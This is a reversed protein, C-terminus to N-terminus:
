TWVVDLEEDRDDYVEYSIDLDNRDTKSLRIKYSGVAINPTRVKNGDSSYTGVIIGGNLTFVTATYNEIPNGESDQALLTIRGLGDNDSNSRGDVISQDFYTKIALPNGINNLAITLLDTFMANALIFRKQALADRLEGVTGKKGVQGEADAIWQAQLDAFEEAVAVGLAASNTATATKLRTLINPWEGKGAQNLETLGKPFFTLYLPSRIGFLFVVQKELKRAAALVTETTLTLGLTAGKKIAEEVSKSGSVVDFQNYAEQMQLMVADYIGGPNNNKLRELHDFALQRFNDNSINVEDDFPNKLYRTLQIM